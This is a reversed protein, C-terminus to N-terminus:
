SHVSHDREAHTSTDICMLTSSRKLDFLARTKSHWTHASPSNSNGGKEPFLSGKETSVGEVGSVGINSKLRHGGAAM